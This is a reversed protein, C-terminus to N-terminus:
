SPHGPRDARAPHRRHRVRLCGLLANTDAALQANTDAVFRAVAVSPAGQLDPFYMAATDGEPRRVYDYLIEDFGLRAAEVALDIQYQRVEANAVNTFAAEGYDTALPGGSGQLVLMETRDNEWAWSALQPDLFCVIRGIVRVGLGHLQDLASRADYHGMAAGTTTALPM